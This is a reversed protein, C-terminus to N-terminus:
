ETDGKYMVKSLLKIFLNMKRIKYFFTLFNIAINVKFAEGKMWCFHIKYNYKSFINKIMEFCEESYEKLLRYELFSAQEILYATYLKIYYYYCYKKSNNIYEKNSSIFNDINNIMKPVDNKIKNKDKHTISQNNILNNYGIYNKFSINNTKSMCRMTFVVDEGYLRVDPSKINNEDLFSKNYLKAWVTARKYRNWEKSNDLVYEFDLEGDPFVRRYGGIIIDEKKNNELMKEIFDYDFYDDVDLCTIYDGTAQEYAINRTISLGVNKHSDYKVNKNEKAYKKIMKLSNDKSGDDSLIIEINKYTQNLVSDMCKDIFDQGNYVPIIISVLLKKAM